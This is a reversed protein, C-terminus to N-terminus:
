PYKKDIWIEKAVIYPIYQQIFKLGSAHWHARSGIMCKPSGFVAIGTRLRPSAQAKNM